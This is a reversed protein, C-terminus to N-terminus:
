EDDGKDLYHFAWAAGLIFLVTPVAVPWWDAWWDAM